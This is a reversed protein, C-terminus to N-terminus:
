CHAMIPIVHYKGGHTVGRSHLYQLGQLTEYCLRTLCEDPNKFKAKVPANVAPGLLLYVFCHHTGNPGTLCFEDLPLCIFEAGPVHSHHNATHHLITSHVRGRFHEEPFEATAIKVAVYKEKTKSTTDRCLWVNASGGTGLKHVVLYRGNLVSELLVPHHGGPCYLHLDELDDSRFAGDALYLNTLFEEDSYSM